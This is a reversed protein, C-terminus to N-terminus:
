LTLDLGMHPEASQASDGQSEKDRGRQGWGGQEESTCALLGM